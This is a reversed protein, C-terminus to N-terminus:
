HIQFLLNRTERITQEPLHPLSDDELSLFGFQELSFTVTKRFILREGFVSVYRATDGDPVLLYIHEFPTVDLAALDAPNFFYVMNKGFLFQAPGTLMAFGDGTVNRDVLILDKDSFESSFVEIQKLLTRNEAFPLAMSWAPYQFLFLGFFLLSAFVLRKGKPQPLLIDGGENKKPSFILAVAIVASFLLTPFLSFLYRRLMWPHDLSINPDFLYIFTPLALLAPLLLIYKKEKISLLIGFLGLIFLILLGYLFFIQGLTFPGSTNTIDGVISGAGIQHLFKILAKGIMKYYPLNIFFDRLFFFAFLLGPLIISKWPATKWLRRAPQNFCLIIFALALFAFGEIRTFALLGSALLIGAYSLINGERLFLIINWVLFTFLFVALNESLTIKAFWVPLFSTMALILGAFAYYPHVVTRILNYFVFLFLFLLIVNAVTPGSVGFLAVFSALWSTYGLPFQTILYGEKTYAFGPFNLATGEGYIQFFSTGASTTFALEGNQALRFAAESISGQDRGSFLTPESFFGILISFLLCFLFAGRRDLPSRSLLQWSVLIIAIGSPLVGFLILPLSFFGSIALLFAFWGFVVFVLGLLVPLLETKVTDSLVKIM